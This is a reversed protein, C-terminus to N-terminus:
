SALFIYPTRGAIHGRGLFWTRTEPLSQVRGSLALARALWNALKGPSIRWQRLREPVVDVTGVAPCPIFARKGDPSWRVKEWHAEPCSGCSAHTALGTESLFGVATLADFDVTSWESIDDFTFNPNVRSLGLLFESWM